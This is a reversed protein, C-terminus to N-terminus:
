HSHLIIPNKLGIIHTYQWKGERMWNYTNQTKQTERTEQTERIESNGFMRRMQIDFSIDRQIQAIETELQTMKM